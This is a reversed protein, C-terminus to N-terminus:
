NEGAGHGPSPSDLVARPEVKEERPAFSQLTNRRKRIEKATFKERRGRNWGRYTSTNFGFTLSYTGIRLLATFLKSICNRLNPVLNFKAFNYVLDAYLHFFYHSLGRYERRRKM